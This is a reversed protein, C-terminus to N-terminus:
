VPKNFRMGYENIVAMRVFMEESYWGTDRTKKVMPSHSKGKYAFSQIAAVSDWLSLTAQEILPLEGVGKAFILGPQEDLNRSSGPVNMWFRLAQSRKISARTLVAVPGNWDGFDADIRFPQKGNWTGHARFPIGDWGTWHTALACLGAWRKDQTFFRAADDHSEWVGFWAYTSLDPLVSFGKGAGSGLHKWFVLGNARWDQFRSRGMEALANWQASLGKFHLFRVTVLMPQSPTEEYTQEIRKSM